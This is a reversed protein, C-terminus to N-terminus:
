TMGADPGASGPPGIAMHTWAPADSAPFSEESAEDVADDPPIRDGCQRSACQNTSTEPRRDCLAITMLLSADDIGRISHPQNARLHLLDGVGLEHTVGDATFAVRGELCQVTAEGRTTHPAVAKGRPVVLRVVELGEGELLATARAGGLWPGLPRVNIVGARRPGPGIKAQQEGVAGGGVAHLRPASASLFARVDALACEIAERRVPDSARSHSCTLKELLREAALAVSMGEAMITPYQRHHARAVTALCFSCGGHSVIIRQPDAGM